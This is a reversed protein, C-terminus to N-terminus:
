GTSTGTPSSRCSPTRSSTASRRRRARRHARLPDRGGACSAAAARARGGPRALAAACWSRPASSADARRVTQGTLRVGLPLAFVVSSVLLPQVVALRGITSRSRRRPSAWRTPPSGRSGCRVAHWRCCCGRPAARRMPTPPITWCRRRSSCRASRSSSLPWSRSPSRWPSVSSIAIWRICTRRAAPGCRAPRLRRTPRRARATTPARAACTAIGATTCRRSCRRGRRRPDGARRPVLAAPAHAGLERRRPVRAGRARPLVRRGPLLRAPLALDVPGRVVVREGPPLAQRHVGPEARVVPLGLRGRARLVDRDHAARGRVDLGGGHRLPPPPHADPDHLRVRPLGDAAAAGHRDRLHPRHPRAQPVM